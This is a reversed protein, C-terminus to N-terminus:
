QNNDIKVKPDIFLYEDNKSIDIIHEPNWSNYINEINTNNNILTTM